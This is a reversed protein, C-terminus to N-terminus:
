IVTSIMEILKIKQIIHSIFFIGATVNYSLETRTMEITYNWFIEVSGWLLSQFKRPFNPDWLGFFTYLYIFSMQFKWFPPPNSVFGKQSSPLSTKWFYENGYYNYSRTPCHIPQAKMSNDQNGQLMELLEHVTCPNSKCPKQSLLGGSLLRLCDRQFLLLQRWLHM